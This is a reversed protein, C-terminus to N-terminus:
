VIRLEVDVALISKNAIKSATWLRPYIKNKLKLPKL